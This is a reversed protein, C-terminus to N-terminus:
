TCDEEARLWILTQRGSFMYCLRREACGDRCVAFMCREEETVNVGDLFLDASVLVTLPAVLRFASDKTAIERETMYLIFTEAAKTEFCHWYPSGKCLLSM